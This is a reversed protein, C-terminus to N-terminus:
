LPFDRGLRQPVVGFVKGGNAKVAQATAEMLGCNAGGYVLTMGNKGIWEGLSRAADYYVADMNNSSACFVGIKEMM